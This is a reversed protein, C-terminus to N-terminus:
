TEPEILTVVFTLDNVRKISIDYESSPAIFYAPITAEEELYETIFQKNCVEEYDVAPVYVICTGNVIITYPGGPGTIMYEVARRRESCGNVTCHVYGNGEYKWEHKLHSPSMVVNEIFKDSGNLAIDCVIKNEAVWIEKLRVEVSENKDNKNYLLTGFTDTPRFSGTTSAANSISTGSVQIRAGKGFGIRGYKGYEDDTWYIDPLIVSKNRRIFSWSYRQKYGLEACKECNDDACVLGGHEYDWKVVACEIAQLKSERLTMLSATPEEGYYDIIMYGTINSMSELNRGGVDLFDDGINSSYATSSKGGIYNIKGAFETNNKVIEIPRRTETGFAWTMLGQSEARIEVADEISSINHVEIGENDPELVFSADGPVFGTFQTEYNLNFMFDEDVQGLHYTITLNELDFEPYVIRDRNSGDLYRPAIELDHKDMAIRHIVDEGNEGTFSVVIKYEGGDQKDVRIVTLENDLVIPKNSAHKPSLINLKMDKPSEVSYVIHMNVAFGNIWPASFDFLRNSDYNLMGLQLVAIGHAADSGSRVLVIEERNLDSFKPNRFDIYYYEEAVGSGKIRHKYENTSIHYDFDLNELKHVYVKVTETVGICAAAFVSTGNADPMPMFTGDERVFVNDGGFGPLGIGRSGDGVVEIYVGDELSFDTLEIESDATLGTLELSGGAPLSALSIGKPGEVEFVVGESWMVQSNKVCLAVEHDGAELGAIEHSLDAYEGYKGVAEGDVFWCASFGTIGSIEASAELKDSQGLTGNKLSIKITPINVMENVITISGDSQFSFTAEYSSIFGKVIRVTDAKVIKNTDARVIEFRYFGNSLAIEGDNIYSGESYKLDKEYKKEEAENYLRLSLSYGDNGSLAVTFNGNGACETIIITVSNTAGASVKIEEEGSGIVTGDTNKSDVSVKYSGEELEFSTSSEDAGLSAKAVVNGSADMVSVDYGTSVMSVSPLIGRSQGGSISIVLTGERDLAVDNNCSTFMLAFALVAILFFVNKKM